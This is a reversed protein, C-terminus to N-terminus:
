LKANPFIKIYASDSYSSKSGIYLRFMKINLAYSPKGTTM